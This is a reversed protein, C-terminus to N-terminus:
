RRGGLIMKYVKGKKCINSDIQFEIRQGILSPELDARADESVMFKRLGSCGESKVDVWLIGQEKDYSKIIGALFLEDVCFARQFPMLLVSLLILIMVTKLRMNRLRMNRM